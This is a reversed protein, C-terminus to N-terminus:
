QTISKKILDIVDKVPTEAKIIYREPHEMSAHAKDQSSSRNTLFIIPVTKGWADQRIEHATEYGNKLPMDIDLLILAPHKELAIRVAQEGNEAMIIEIGANILAIAYLERIHTDDEALLVQHTGTNM